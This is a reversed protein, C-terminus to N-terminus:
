PSKLHRNWVKRCYTRKDVNQFILNLELSRKNVNSINCISLCKNIFIIIKYKKWQMKHKLAFLSLLFWFKKQQFYSFQRSVRVSWMIKIFFLRLIKKILFQFDFKLFDIFIIISFIISIIAHKENQKLKVVIM